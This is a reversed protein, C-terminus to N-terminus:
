LAYLNIAPFSRLAKEVRLIFARDLQLNSIFLKSMFAEGKRINICCTFSDANFLGQLHKM